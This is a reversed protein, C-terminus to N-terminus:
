NQTYCIRITIRKGKCNVANSLVFRNQPEPIARFKTEWERQIRSSAASYGQLPPETDSSAALLLFSSLALLCLRAGSRM